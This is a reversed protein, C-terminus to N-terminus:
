YRLHTVDGAGVAMLEGNTAQKIVIQGREDIGAAVGIIEAGGPLHVRVDRGLSDCADEVALRIGSAEADGGYTAYKSTLDILEVLYAALVGDFSTDVAGAQALSTVQGPLGDPARDLNVGAGIVIGAAEPLLECLIGSVKKQGILVDNPWKLGVDDDVLPTLARTMALGAILPYWTFRDIPLAAGSSDVPRLLISAALGSGGAVWERGHRGRGRTQNDTVIGSLDPWDAAAPGSALRVLEDNTSDVEDLHVLGPVLSRSKPLQM